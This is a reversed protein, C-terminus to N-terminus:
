TSRPSLGRCLTASSSFVSMFFSAFYSTLSLFFSIISVELAANILMSSLVQCSIDSSWWVLSSLEQQFYIGTFTWIVFYGGFCIFSYVRAYVRLHRHAEHLGACLMTDLLKEYPALNNLIFVVYWSQDAGLLLRSWAPLSWYSNNFHVQTIDGSTRMKRRQINGRSISLTWQNTWAVTRTPDYSRM